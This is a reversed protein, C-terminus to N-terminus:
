QTREWMRVFDEASHWIADQYRPQLGQGALDDVFAGLLGIHGLGKTNLDSEDTYPTAPDDVVPHGQAGREGANGLCAARDGRSSGDSFRPAANAIMGNMDAAFGTPIGRDVLYTLAQVFETSSGHCANPVAANTTEMHDFGTRQGFMGGRRRLMDLVPRATPKEQYPGKHAESALAGRPDGHSVYLPYEQTHALSDVLADIEAVDRDGAHALDILMHKKVLLKILEAGPGSLGRANACDHRDKLCRWCDAPTASDRETCTLGSLGGLIGGLAHIDNFDAFSTVPFLSSLPAPAGGFSDVVGDITSQLDAPISLTSLGTLYEGLTVDGDAELHDYFWQMAHVSKDYLGVGAYPNDFHAVVQMGSLGKARYADLTAEMRTPDTEDDGSGCPEERCFPFESELTLVLALHGEGIIRRADAPTRAIEVWDHAADFAAAADLQKMIVDYPLEHYSPRLKSLPHVELISASIIQLGKTHADKLWGWWHQQHTPTDWAPWDSFHKGCNPPWVADWSCEGWDEWHCDVRACDRMGCGDSAHHACEASDLDSCQLGDLSLADHYCYETSGCEDSHHACETPTLDACTLSDFSWDHKCEGWLSSWHCVSGHNACETPDLDNCELMGGTHHCGSQWRCGSGHHHDCEGHDLDGCTLSSSFDQQICRDGADCDPYHTWCADMDDTLSALSSGHSGCYGHGDCDARSVHVNCALLASVSAGGADDRCLGPDAGECSPQDTKTLCTGPGVCAYTCARTDYGNRRMLHMGADGASPGSFGLFATDSGVATLAESVIGLGGAGYGERLGAHDFHGLPNGSCRPLADEQSGEVSGWIFDGGWAHEAFMHTHLEAFGGISTTRWEKPTSKDGPGVVVDGKTPAVDYPSAVTPWPPDFMLSAAVASGPDLYTSGASTSGGSTSGGSTSGGASMATAAVASSAAAAAATLYWPLPPPLGDPYLDGPLGVSELGAPSDPDVSVAPTTSLTASSAAGPDVAPLIQAGANGAVALAGALAVLAVRAALPRRGSLLPIPQM